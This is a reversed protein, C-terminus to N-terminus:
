RIDQYSRPVTDYAEETKDAFAERMDRIVDVLTKNTYKCYGILALGFLITISLLNSFLVEGSVM